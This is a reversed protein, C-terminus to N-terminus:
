PPLNKKHGKTPPPIPLPITSTLHPCHLEEEDQALSRTPKSPQGGGKQHLIVTSACRCMRDARPPGTLLERVVPEQRSCQPILPYSKTHPSFSPIRPNPPFSGSVPRTCGETPFGHDAAGRPWISNSSATAPRCGLCGRCCSARLVFCSASGPYAPRTLPPPFGLVAGPLSAVM